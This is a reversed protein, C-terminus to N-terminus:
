QPSKVENGPNFNISEVEFISWLSIIINCFVSATKSMFGSGHLRLTQIINIHIFPRFLNYKSVISIHRDFICGVYHKITLIKTSLHLVGRVVM